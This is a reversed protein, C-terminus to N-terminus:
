SHRSSHCDMRSRGRGCGLCSRPVVARFYDPSCYFIFAPRARTLSFTPKLLVNGKDEDCQMFFLAHLAHDLKPLDYRCNCKSIGANIGM